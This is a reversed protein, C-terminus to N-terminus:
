SFEGSFYREESSFFAIRRLIRLIRLLIANNGQSSRSREERRPPGCSRLRSSRPTEPSFSGARGVATRGTDTGGTRTWTGCM